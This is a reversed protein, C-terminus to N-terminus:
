QRDILGVTLSLEGPYANVVREDVKPRKLAGLAVDGM